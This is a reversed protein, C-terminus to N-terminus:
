GKKICSEIHYIYDAVAGDRHDCCVYDVFSRIDQPANLPAASHGAVQLMNADNYYDGIAYVQTLPVNMHECLKQLATGKNVDKPLMEVIYDASLVVDFTDDHLSRVYHYIAQVQQPDGFFLVKNWERDIDTLSDVMTSRICEIREAIEQYACVAPSYMTDECLIFCSVQPYAEQARIAARKLNENCWYSYLRKDSALDYIQTGNTTIIPCNIPLQNRYTRVSTQSRGTAISFWGGNDTFYSIAKRNEEPITLPDALLTGDMDSILLMGSFKGM